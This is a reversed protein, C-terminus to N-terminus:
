ADAAALRRRFAEYDEPTDIGPAAPGGRVVRIPYGHELARLQELCETRELPTPELEALELLARRRYAYVGVHRLVPAAQDAGSRRHPIGARSFYLARDRRDCVVKVASETGLLELDSTVSALTGLPVSPEALMAAVLADVDRVSFEPEDGQLNVVLEESRERAVEAVRDTGSACAPSTMVAEGGFALVADRIRTDDTAVLVQPSGALRWARRVVHEVITRGGARLLPKGPLRTSAHRAPVVVLVDGPTRSAATEDTM